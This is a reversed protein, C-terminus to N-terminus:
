AAARAPNRADRLLQKLKHLTAGDPVGGPAHGFHLHSWDVV